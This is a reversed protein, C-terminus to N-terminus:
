RGRKRRVYLVRKVRAIVAGAKDNIEVDFVPLYKEGAATAARIEELREPTLVFKVRVPGRGPAVFDIEAAKDWVIYNPGLNQSLMLMYFPDTMAFLSGGFQTGMANRNWWRLKLEVEFHRFEQDSAKVRIGAFLLPPWLNIFQRLWRPSLVPM